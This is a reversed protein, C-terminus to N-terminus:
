PARAGADLGVQEEMEALRLELDYSERRIRLDYYLLVIAAVYFPLGFVSIISSVATPLTMALELAETPMLIMIAWQLAMVPVSMFLAMLIYILVLYGVMRLVNDQSLHWSRRLADLPGTGEAVLATPAVLWRALLYFSPVLVLIIALGYGCVALGVMGVAALIGGAGGSEFPNGGFLAGAAAVLALGVLVLPVLVVLSAAAIAAYQVIMMGVYPLFRRVGRRLGTMLPLSGGHLAEVAQATLSLNVIANAAASVAALLLVSAYLGGFLDFAMSFPIDDPDTAETMFQGMNQMFGGFSGGLFIGSIIAIPVLLVAATLLFLGFRARYLRFARDLLDGVTLPGTLALPSGTGAQPTPPQVGM